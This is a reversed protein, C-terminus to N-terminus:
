FDPEHSEQNGTANDQPMEDEFLVDVPLEKMAELEEPTHPPQPLKTREEIDSKSLQIPFKGGIRGDGNVDAMSRTAKEVTESGNAYDKLLKQRAAELLPEMLEPPLDSNEFRITKLEDGIRRIIRADSRVEAIVYDAQRDKRLMERENQSHERTMSKDPNAQDYVLFGVVQVFAAIGVIVYATTEFGQEGGIRFLNVVLMSLALIVSLWLAWYAIQNQKADNRKRSTTAKWSVIAAEFFVGIGIAAIQGVVPAFADINFWLGVTIVALFVGFAPWSASDHDDLWKAVGDRFSKLGDKFEQTYSKNSM